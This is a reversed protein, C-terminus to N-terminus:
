TKVLTTIDKLLCAVNSDIKVLSKCINLLDGTIEQLAAVCSSNSHQAHTYLVHKIM